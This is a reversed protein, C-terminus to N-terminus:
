HALAHGTKQRLHYKKALLPFIFLVTTSAILTGFVISGGFRQTPPFSSFFFIGFGSCIIFMSTIIPEWMARRVKLWDDYHNGKKSGLRRYAHVMHIMADIGMAIAVNVAPASITDLAIGFTGISGLICLPVISISITMAMGIRLSRSVIFSILAFALILRGLGYILSSSIHSSLYGQLTYIGGVFHPSFQHSYVIEKIENIVTLRQNIRGGEKMRILFLGHKRDDTIFSATVKSYRERSM